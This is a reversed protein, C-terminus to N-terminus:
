DQAESCVDSIEGYGQSDVRPMNGTLPDGNPNAQRVEITFIFDVKNKIM